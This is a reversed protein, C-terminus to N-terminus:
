GLVEKMIAHAEEQPLVGPDGEKLLIMDVELGVGALENGLEDARKRAEEGADYLLTIKKFRKSLLLVQKKTWGVGFTAASGRGMRWVDTCGEVIVAHDGRCRDINYLIHKHHIVEDKRECARYRLPSVGTWDRGLYSVLEFEYYIPLIIRHSFNGINGTALVGYEQEIYDPDFGRKRIYDKHKDQLPGCGLPFKIKDAVEIKEERNKYEDSEYLTKVQDWSENIILRIAEEINHGGCKWCSFFGNFHFGGHKGDDDCFPCMINVFGRSNQPSFDIYFDTFLREFDFVM